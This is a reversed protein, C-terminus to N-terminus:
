LDQLRNWFEECRPRHVIDSWIFRKLTRETDEWSESLPQLRARQSGHLMGAIGLRLNRDAAFAVGIHLLWLLLDAHDDWGAWLETAQLETLLYATVRAPIMHGTWIDTFCGYACLYAAPICARLLPEAAVHRLQELRSEIWAQQNDIKEVDLNDLPYNTGNERVHQLARIDGIIDIFEDGLIHKREAFGEPITYLNLQFPDRHWHIEPFMDHSFVRDTGAIM